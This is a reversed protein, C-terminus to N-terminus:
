LDDQFKNYGEYVTGCSFIIEQGQVGSTFDALAQIFKIAVKLSGTPLMRTYEKPLYVLVGNNAAPQVPDEIVGGGLADVTSTLKTVPVDDVLVVATMGSLATVDIPDGNDDLALIPIVADDGQRVVNNYPFYSM